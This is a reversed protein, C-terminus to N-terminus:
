VFSDVQVTLSISKDVPESVTSIAGETSTIGCTNYVVPVLPVNRIKSMHKSRTEPTMSFWKQEDIELFKYQPCFRYKRRRCVACEIEQQQDNVLCKM